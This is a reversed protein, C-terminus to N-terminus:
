SIPTLLFSCQHCKYSPATALTWFNEAVVLDKENSRPLLSLKHKEPTWIILRGAQIYGSEMETGCKPCIM